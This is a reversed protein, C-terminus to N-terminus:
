IEHGRTLNRLLGVLEVLSFPKKLYHNIGVRLAKDILEDDKRYSVAVFPIDSLEASHRLENRLAFVNMKPLLVESVIADPRIQSIANLAEQGDRATMIGYGDERLMRSVIEMYPAEPDAFLISAGAALDLSGGFDSYCVTNQGAQQAMRVRAAAVRELSNVRAMPSAGNAEAADAVGISVTITELFLSSQAIEQRIEEAIQQAETLDVDEIAYVLQPGAYKFIGTADRRSSALRYNRLLYAVTHLAHDGGSRGYNANIRRIDDIAILLVSVSRHPAEIVQQLYGRFATENPLGTVADTQDQVTEGTPSQAGPAAESPSEREPAHSDRSLAEDLRARLGAGVDRGLLAERDTEALTSGDPLRAAAAGFWHRASGSLPVGHAPLLWSAADAPIGADALLGELADAVEAGLVARQYAAVSLTLTTAKKAHSGPGISGFLPGTFLLTGDATAALTAGVEISSADLVRLGSRTSVRRFDGEALLLDIKSSRPRLRPSWGVFAEVDDHFSRLWKLVAGGCMGVILPSQFLVTLPQGSSIRSRLAPYLRDRRSLPFPDILTTGADNQLIYMSRAAHGPLAPRVLARVGQTLEQIYM